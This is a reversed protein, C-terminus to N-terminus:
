YFRNYRPRDASRKENAEGGLNCVRKLIESPATHTFIYDVEMQKEALAKLGNNM